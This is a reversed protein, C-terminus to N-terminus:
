VNQNTKKNYLPKHKNVLDFIQTYNNQKVEDIPQYKAFKVLDAFALFDNLKQIEEETFIKNQAIEEIFEDTLREAYNIKYKRGIFRKVIFSLSVYLDKADEKELIKYKKIKKLGFVAEDYPSILDKYIEKIIEKEKKVLLYVIFGIVALVYFIAFLIWNKQVYDWLSYNEEMITKINYLGQKKEDVKVENVLIEKKPTNYTNKNIKVQFPPLIFKGSEYSTITIEKITLGSKKDDSISLIDFNSISDLPSITLSDKKQKDVSITVLIPEGIKIKQTSLKLDVQALISVVPFLVFFSFHFNKL